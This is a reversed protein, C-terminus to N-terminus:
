FSPSNNQFNTQHWRPFPVFGLCKVRVAIWKLIMRVDNGFWKKHIQRWNTTKALNVSSPNKFISSSNEAKRHEGHGASIYIICWSSSETGRKLSCAMGSASVVWRGCSMILNERMLIKICLRRVEHKKYSISDLKIFAECTTLSPYRDTTPLVAGVRQISNNPSSFPKQSQRQLPSRSQFGNFTTELTRSLIVYSCNHGSSLTIDRDM